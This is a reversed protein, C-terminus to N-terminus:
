MQQKKPMEIISISKKKNLINDRLNSYVIFNRFYIIDKTFNYNKFNCIPNSLRLLVLSVISINKSKKFNLKGEWRPVKPLKFTNQYLIGTLFTM